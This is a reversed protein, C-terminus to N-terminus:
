NLWPEDLEWPEPNDPATAQPRRPEAMARAAIVGAAMGFLHGEWSIYDQPVIGAVMGGYFVIVLLASALARPRREFVAASLIAGFYGFVVGSAGIHNGFGALAWTLGGGVVIVTLTVLAWYRMGRVAVLGGLALLPLSNSAIHGFDSHLFPTWVIGDLGDRRRPLIGNGQLRDDLALTDVIEIGWMVALALVLLGIPTWLLRGFSRRPETTEVM